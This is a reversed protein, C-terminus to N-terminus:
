QFHNDTLSQYELHLLDNSVLVSSMNLKVYFQKDQIFGPEAQVANCTKDIKDM